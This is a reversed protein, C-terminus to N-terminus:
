REMMMMELIRFSLNNTKALMNISSANKVNQDLEDGFFYCQGRLVCYLDKDWVIHSGANISLM